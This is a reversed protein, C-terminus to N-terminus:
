GRKDGTLGLETGVLELRWSGNLRPQCAGVEQEGIGEEFM